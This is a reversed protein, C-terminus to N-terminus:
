WVRSSCYKAARDVVRHRIKVVWLTDTMVADVAIQAAFSQGESNHIVDFGALRRLISINQEVVSHQYVTGVPISTARRLVTTIFM